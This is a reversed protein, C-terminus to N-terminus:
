LYKLALVAHFIMLIFMALSLAFHVVLWGHLWRNLRSQIDFQRRQECLNALRDVVAHAEPRLRTKLEGFVADARSPDDLAMGRGSRAALYPGVQWEYLALLPDSDPVWKAEVGAEVVKGQTRGVKRVSEVVVYADERAKPVTDAETKVGCAAHVLRRAEDRYQSLVHGIQAHITEAPVQRMMMRPIVSQLMGGCIGSAIVLAFLWMLIGALTSRSLGFHFGGHLLLLPLSLVGLWLHARMWVQTRGLRLRRMLKRPWLLMEFAIIAGGLVGFAFGPPSAGSPRRWVGGSFGYALYWVLAVITMLGTLVAWWRHRTWNERDFVLM